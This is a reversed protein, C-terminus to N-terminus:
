VPTGQVHFGIVDAPKIYFSCDRVEGDIAARFDVILTERQRNISRITGLRYGAKPPKMGEPEELNRFFVVDGKKCDSLLVAM